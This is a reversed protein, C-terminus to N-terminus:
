SMGARYARIVQRAVEDVAQHATLAIEDPNPAVGKGVRGAVLLTCLQVLALAQTDITDEILERASVM